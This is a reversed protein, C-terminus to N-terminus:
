WKTKTKGKRRGGGALAAAAAVESKARIEDEQKTRSKQESSMVKMNTTTRAKVDAAGATSGQPGRSLGGRKDRKRQRYTSRERKPLWREPDPLSGPNEVDFNKPYLPKNRARLKKPLQEALADNNGAARKTVPGDLGGRKIWPLGSQELQVADFDTADYAVAHGSLLEPRGLQENAAEVNIHSLAIVLGSLAHVDSPSDAVLKRQSAVAADWRSHRMFFAAGVRTMLDNPVAALMVAAQEVKGLQEHLAVLTGVMAPRGQLSEISLLTELARDHDKAQLQLQALAIAARPDDVDCRCAGERLLLHCVVPQKTRSAVAAKLLLVEASEAFEHELTQLLERCQETKSMHLSLLVANGLFARRQRPTLKPVLTDALTTKSKKWSDFLSAAGSRLAVMNNAAVAAIVPELETKFSFLSEYAVSASQHDGLQQDVYAAQATLTGLEVEIEEETYEDAPLSERCACLADQLLTRAGQLDSLEIAACARNYFLEFQDSRDLSCSYGLAEAARGASVLAALLNTRLEASSPQDSDSVVAMFLESARDYRGLRYYIQASLLNIRSGGGGGLSELTSLSEAERNLQYLCYAREFVFRHGM